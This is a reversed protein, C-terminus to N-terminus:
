TSGSYRPTGAPGSDRRRQISSRWRSTSPEEAAACRSPKGWLGFPKCTWRWCPSHKWAHKNKCIQRPAHMRVCRRGWGGEGGSMQTKCSSPSSLLSWSSSSLSGGLSLLCLWMFPEPTRSRALPSQCASVASSIENSRATLISLIKHLPRIHVSQVAVSLLLM